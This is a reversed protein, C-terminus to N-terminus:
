SIDLISNLTYSTQGLTAPFLFLYGLGFKHLKEPDTSMGPVVGDKFSSHWQGAADVGGFGSPPGTLEDNLGGYWYANMPTTSGIFDLTATHTGTPDTWIATKAVNDITPETPLRFSQAMFGTAPISAVVDDITMRGLSSAGSTEDWDVTRQAGTVPGYALSDTLDNVLNFGNADTVVTGTEPHYFGKTYAENANNAEPVGYGVNDLGGNRSSGFM